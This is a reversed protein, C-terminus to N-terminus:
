LKSPLSGTIAQYLQQFEPTGVGSSPDWGVSAQFGTICCAASATCGNDGVVVDRFPQLPSDQYLSYLLPNFFGIPPKGLTLLKDNILTLLSAVLPTSASTGDIPTLAGDLLCMYNHAMGSIDPYARGSQNFSTLPVNNYTQLYLGVADSQYSPMAFFNSFGGGSTIRAAANKSTAVAEGGYRYLVTGGVSTAYPSSGPFQPQFPNSACAPWPTGRSTYGLVGDDGSAFLMTLGRVGAKQLEVNIRNMYELTLTMEEDAYSVSHVLPADPSNSIDTLWELFPEQGEHLDGLSWFVTRVNASVGVMWQIDLTAEGGPKSEVNPGIVSVPVKSTVDMLALWRQLDKESYYEGLFEAVSQSNMANANTLSAPVGYLAKLKSVTWIPGLQAVSAGFPSASVLPKGVNWLSRVYVDVRRLNPLNSIQMACFFPMAGNSLPMSINLSKLLRARNLSVINSTDSPSFQECNQASVTSNFSVSEIELHMEVSVKSSVGLTPCFVYGTRTPDSYGVSGDKCMVLFDGLLWMDGNVLSSQRPFWHASQLNVNATDQNKKDIHGDVSSGSHSSDADSGTSTQVSMAGRFSRSFAANQLLTQSSTHPPPSFPRSPPFRLLGGVFDIDGVLTSPVAYSSARLIRKRSSVHEFLSLDRLSFLSTAQSASLRVTLLDSHLSLEMAEVSVGASVLWTKIRLVRDQPPSVLTGVELTSWYKGYNSSKPNSVDWFTKQLCYPM